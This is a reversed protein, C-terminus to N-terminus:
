DQGPSSWMQSLVAPTHNLSSGPSSAPRVQFAAWPPWASRSGGSGERKLLLPKLTGWFTFGLPVVPIGMGAEFAM